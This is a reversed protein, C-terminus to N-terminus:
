ACMSFHTAGHTCATVSSSYRARTSSSSTTGRRRSRAPADAPELREHRLRGVLELELARGPQAVLEGRDALGDLALLHHPLLGLLEVDDPDGVVLELRRHLDEEDPPAPDDPRLPSMTSLTSSRSSRRARRGRARAARRRRRARRRAWPPARGAGARPGPGRRPTGRAHHAAALDADPDRLAALLARQERGDLAVRLLREGAVLELPRGVVVRAGLREGRQLLRQSSGSAGSRMSHKSMEFRCPVSITADIVTSSSPM